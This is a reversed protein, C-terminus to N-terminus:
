RSLMNNQSMNYIDITETALYHLLTSEGHQPPAAVVESDAMDAFRASGWRDRRLNLVNRVLFAQVGSRECTVLANCIEEVRGACDADLALGSLQHVM